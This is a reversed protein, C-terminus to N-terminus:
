PADPRIKCSADPARPENADRRQAGPNTLRGAPIIARLAGWAWKTPGRQNTKSFENEGATPLGLRCILFDSVGVSFDYVSRARSYPFGARKSFASEFIVRREVGIGGAGPVDARAFLALSVCTPPSERCARALALVLARMVGALKLTQNGASCPNPCEKKV